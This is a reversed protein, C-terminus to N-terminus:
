EKKPVVPAIPLQADRLPFKKGEKLLNRLHLIVIGKIGSHGALEKL